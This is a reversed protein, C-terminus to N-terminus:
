VRFGEIFEIMDKETNYQEIKVGFALTQLDQNLRNHVNINMAHCVHRVAEKEKVGGDVEELFLGYGHIKDEELESRESNHELIRYM